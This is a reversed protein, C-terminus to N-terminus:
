TPRRNKRTTTASTKKSSRTGKTRALVARLISTKGASRLVMPSKKLTSEYADVAQQLTQQSGTGASWSKTLIIAIATIATKDYKTFATLTSEAFLKYINAVTAATATMPNTLAHYEEKLNEVFTDILPQSIKKSKIFEIFELKEL